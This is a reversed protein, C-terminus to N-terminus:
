PPPVSLAAVSAPPQSSSARQYLPMASLPIPRPLLPGPYNSSAASDQLASWTRTAGQSVLSSPLPLGARKYYDLWQDIQHQGGSSAQWDSEGVEDRVARWHNRTSLWSSLFDCLSSSPASESAPSAGAPAAASSPTAAGAPVAAAADPTSEHASVFPQAPAVVNAHTSAAVATSAAASATAASSLVAEQQERRQARLKDRVYDVTEQWEEWGAMSDTVPRLSGEVHARKQSARIQELFRSAHAEESATHSIASRNRYRRRQTSDVSPSRSQSRSGSRSSDSSSGDSASSDSHGALQPVPAAQDPALALQSGRSQSRSRSRRSSDSRERERHSHRKSRKARRERLEKEERRRRRKRERKAERAALREAESRQPPEYTYSEVYKLANILQHKKFICPAAASPAGATAASGGIASSTGGSNAEAAAMWRRLTLKALPVNAAADEAKPVVLMMLRYLQPALLPGWEDRVAAAASPGTRAAAAAASAAMAASRECLRVLLDWLMARVSIPTASVDAALRSEIVAFAAAASLPAEASLALSVAADIQAASFSPAPPGAAVCLAALASTFSSLSM